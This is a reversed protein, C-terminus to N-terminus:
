FVEEHIKTALRQFFNEVAMLIQEAREPSYSRDVHMTPNRWARRVNDFSTAAEAYFQEDASRAKSSKMKGQIAKEIERLYTGWDNSRGVGVARALERLGVEMARNLHMVCATGREFALCCGAEFIDDNASPFANFVAAGFLKDAEFYKEYRGLPGYFKRGELEIFVTNTLQRISEHLNQVTAAGGVMHNAMKASVPLELKELYQFIQDVGADGTAKKIEPSIQGGIGRLMMESRYLTHILAIFEKADLTLM